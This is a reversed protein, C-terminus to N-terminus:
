RRKPLSEHARRLGVDLCCRIVYVDIVCIRGRHGLSRHYSTTSYCVLGCDIPLMRCRVGRLYTAGLQKRVTLTIRHIRRKDGLYRGPETRQSRSAQCGYRGTGRIDIKIPHMVSAIVSLVTNKASSTSPREAPNRSQRGTRHREGVVQCTQCTTRIKRVKHGSGPHCALRVVRILNSHM